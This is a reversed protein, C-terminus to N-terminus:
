EGQHPHLYYSLSIFVLYVAPYFILTFRNKNNEFIITTMYDSERILYITMIKNPCLIM